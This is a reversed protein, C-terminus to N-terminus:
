DSLIYNEVDVVGDLKRVESEIRQKAIPDSVNGDLLVVGDKLHANVAPYGMAAVTEQLEEPTVAFASSAGLLGLALAAALTLKTLSRQMATKEHSPTM